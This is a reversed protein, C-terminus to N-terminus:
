QTSVNLGNDDSYARIAVLGSMFVLTTFGRGWQRSSRPLALDAWLVWKTSLMSVEVAEVPFRPTM